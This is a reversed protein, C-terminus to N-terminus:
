GRLYPPKDSIQIDKIRDDIRISHDGIVIRDFVVPVPYVQEGDLLVVIDGNAWQIQVTKVEETM